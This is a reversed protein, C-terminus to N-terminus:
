VAAILDRATANEFRAHLGMRMARQYIERADVCREAVALLFGRGRLSIPTVHGSVTFELDFIIEKTM